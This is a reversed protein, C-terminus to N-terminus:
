CAMVGLATWVLPPISEHEDRGLREALVQTLAGGLGLDFISFYGVVLWILTLVGFRETGLGHILIPVTFIAAIAPAVQGILNWVTNRGIMLALEHRSRRGHMRECRRRIWPRVGM